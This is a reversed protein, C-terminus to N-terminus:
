AEEKDFREHYLQDASPIIDFWMVIIKIPWVLAWVSWEVYTIFKTRDFNHYKSELIESWCEHYDDWDFANDFMHWCILLSMIVAGLLHGVTMWLLVWILYWIM